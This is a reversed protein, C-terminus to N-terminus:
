RCRRLLLLLLLLLICHQQPATHENSAAFLIGCLFLELKKIGLLTIPPTKPLQSFIFAGVATPGCYFFYM